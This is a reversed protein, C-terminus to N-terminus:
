VEVGHPVAHRTLCNLCWVHTDLGDEDFGESSADYLGLTTRTSAHQDIAHARGVTEVYKLRGPNSGASPWWCAPCVWGIDDVYLLDHVEQVEIHVSPDNDAGAAMAVIAAEVAASDAPAADDVYIVWAQRRRPGGSGDPSRRMVWWEGPPVDGPEDDDLPQAPTYGAATAWRRALAAAASADDPFRRCTDCCQVPVADLPIPATGYGQDVAVGEDCESCTETTTTHDSAM